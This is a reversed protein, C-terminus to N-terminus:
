HAISSSRSAPRRRRRDARRGDDGAFERSCRPRRSEAAGRHHPRRGVLGGLRAIGVGAIMFFWLGVADGAQRRRTPITESM